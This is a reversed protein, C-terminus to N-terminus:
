FRRLIDMYELKGNISILPFNITFTNSSSVYLLPSILADYVYRRANPSQLFM